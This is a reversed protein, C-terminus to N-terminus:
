FFRYNDFHAMNATIAGAVMLNQADESIWSHDKKQQIPTYCTAVSLSAVTTYNQADESM